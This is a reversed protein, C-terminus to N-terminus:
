RSARREDHWVTWQGLDYLDAEDKGIARKISRKISAVVRNPADPRAALARDQRTLLVKLERHINHLARERSAYRFIGGSGVFLLEDGYPMTFVWKLYPLRTRYVVDFGDHAVIPAVDVRVNAGRKEIVFGQTSGHLEILFRYDQPYSQLYTRCTELNARIMGLVEQLEDADPVTDRNARAIEEPYSEKLAGSSVPVRRVDNLLRGGEISFGPAIDLVRSTSAPFLQQFTRTPRDTNHTPENVWFLDDELFV